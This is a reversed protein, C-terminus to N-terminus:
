ANLRRRRAFGLGALGLGMLLVTAPEPVTGRIIINQFAFAESGGNTQATLTLTLQSGSGILPATFTSLNNTLMTGGVFMPDNLTFMAGGELTYTYSSAEDVTSMFATIVTGGDFQYTWEFFDTSEFDGMAGMDISLELLSAGSVDFVWDAAVAGSNDANETDTVGFFVDTNSETIIGLSDTPFISLSDDLVSFPITPSVDRQYKQFGDGASTFADTSPDTYSILNDSGSSVMDFAVTTLAPPTVFIQGANVAGFTNTQSSAWTFDEYNAGTGVLQLSEGVPTSSSESAGIDTSTFGNAAGSVAGFTGEYSLFQVVATSPDLLALGDPSGNQIGANPFSLTGFGSEQDPIVGSLNLTSYPDGTAGNYLVLKWNTLDTGAVGAIEIAEGADAGTNDYHIENIYTPTALAPNTILVLLVAGVISAVSRLAVKIYGTDFLVPKRMKVM